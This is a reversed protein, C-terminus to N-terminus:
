HGAPARPPREPTANTSCRTLREGDGGGGGRSSGAEDGARAPTRARIIAAAAGLLRLSDGVEIHNPGSAALVREFQPRTFAGGICSTWRMDTHTAEDMNEDAIM